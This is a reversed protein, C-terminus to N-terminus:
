IVAVAVLIPANAGAGGAGANITATGAAVTLRANVTHAGASPAPIVAEAVLPLAANAAPVSWTCIFGDDAGDLNIRLQNTGTASNNFWSVGRVRILYDSTGDATFSLASALLDTGAAFTTGSSTVSSTKKGSAWAAFRSVDADYEAATVIHGTTFSNSM